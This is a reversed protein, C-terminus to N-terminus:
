KIFGSKQLVDKASNKIHKFRDPGLHTGGYFRTVVVVVNAADAIDLLHSLVAGAGTEGDNDSSQSIAGEPSRLRWAVMNHTADCIKRDQLIDALLAKVEAETHAEICRAVFVSQRDRIIDSMHWREISESVYESNARAAEAEVKAEEMEDLWQEVLPRIEDLFAFMYVEGPVFTADIVDQVKSSLMTDGTHVGSVNTAKPAEEPYQLPILLKVNVPTEPINLVVTSTDESLTATNEYISNIVEVEERAEEM